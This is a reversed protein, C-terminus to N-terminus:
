NGQESPQHPFESTLDGTWRARHTHLYLGPISKACLNSMARKTEKRYSVKTPLNLAPLSMKQAFFACDFWTQKRPIGASSTFSAYIPLTKCAPCPCAGALCATRPAPICQTWEPNLPPRKKVHVAALAITSVSSHTPAPLRGAPCAACKNGHLSFARQTTTTYPPRTSRTWSDSTM